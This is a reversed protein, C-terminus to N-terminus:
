PQARLSALCLGATSRRLVLWGRARGTAPDAAQMARWLREVSIWHPPYKFRAVDLLLALDREAHYGRIPSYHGTGTQELAGRDYSAIVV